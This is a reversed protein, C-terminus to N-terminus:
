PIVWIPSSWAREQLTAPTDPRPEVGARIADWTTWRCTPNELVRVYYFARETPDFDPDSWLTLLDTDGVDDSIGCTTLDVTSGNDPCRHTDPDGSLGDSCAVDYVQESSEGNELWGKIIQVRQLPASLPDRVAWVLFKPTEAPAVLEGGMAVGNAYATAIMDPASTLDDAYGTGGFFRVRMRPGTTAFTERRRFADFISERTNEEAWVGALGAAGNLVGLGTGYRSGDPRTTEFPVSVGPQPQGSPTFYEEERAYTAGTHNDTAGILGFRFPNVGLQEELRLGNLYADRVYSGSPQSPRNGGVRYPRIEFDAWEDNPSLAPHTDSTGKTQTVEVVPENRLRTEAYTADLPAGDYTEMAFMLGNSGNSNHPIALAEMGAERNLDMWAWLEEPNFTDIRSLPMDPVQSGRYIVNRHLNQNEPSGTFEYGIFTTFQGPEYHREAAEIIDQWASRVVTEDLWGDRLGLTYARISAYAGAREAGTLEGSRIREVVVADPHESVTQTPDQSARLMGLMAAHDTVAYFDLPRDLQVEFGAPHMLAEGKAHRYADDPTNRTGNMFADFSYNTHTHLDGFYANRLPNAEVAPEAPSPTSETPATGGCGALGVVLLLSARWAGPREM